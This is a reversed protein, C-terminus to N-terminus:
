GTTVNRQLTGQMTQKGRSNAKREAWVSVGKGMHQWEGKVKAGKRGGRM